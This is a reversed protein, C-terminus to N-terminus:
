GADRGFIGVACNFYTPLGGLNHALGLRANKVQRPGARDLLQNYVEYSMRLGSASLPHGFCKLGGDTNIPLKGDLNFAGAEIDDRAKGRPSFGLDEYIIMEHITFCDHVMAIDIEERPVKIGAQDYAMQACKVNEPMSIFEYDNGLLGEGNGNALGIGKILVYDKKLSKAIDPTTLIAAAGGDSLGCCDFLSLPWSIFPSNLADEESIERRLHAKPSLTGNHHNKVAIKALLRKGDEITIGYHHFYRTAFQAFFNVPALDIEVKSSDFPSTIFQGFGGYHDKLKEVGVALVIDFAGSAVGYCANRLADLGGCCFNEVRTVPIYNLKLAGALRSGTCGSVLSAFWAAQMDEPGLGADEFAEYCAEVMLDEPGKDWLEGFKTCGMGVIAVKDKISEM